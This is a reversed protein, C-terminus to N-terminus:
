ADLNHRGGLEDTVSTDDPARRAEGKKFPCEAM